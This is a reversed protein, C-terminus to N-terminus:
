ANMIARIAKAQDRAKKARKRISTARGGTARNAAKMAVSRAGREVRGRMKKGAAMKIAGVLDGTAAQQQARDLRNVVRVGRSIKESAKKGITAHAAATINKKGIVKNAASHYDRVAGRVDGEKLKATGGAVLATGRAVNALGRTAFKAAAEPRANLASSVRNGIAKFIGKRTPM